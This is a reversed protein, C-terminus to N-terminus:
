QRSDEPPTRTESIYVAYKSQTFFAITLQIEDTAGKQQRHTEVVNM